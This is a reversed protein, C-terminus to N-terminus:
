GSGAPSSVLSARVYISCGAAFLLLDGNDGSGLAAKGGLLGFHGGFGPGFRNAKAGADQPALGGRQGHKGGHHGQGAIQFSRETFLIGACRATRADKAKM